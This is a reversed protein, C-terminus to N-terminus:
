RDGDTPGFRGRRQLERLFLMENIERLEWHRDAVPIGCLFATVNTAESPALGRITLLRVTRRTRIDALPAPPTRLGTGISSGSGAASRKARAQSSAEDGSSPAARVGSFRRGAM